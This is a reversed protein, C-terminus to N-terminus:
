EKVEWHRVLHVSALIEDALGDPLDTLKLGPKQSYAVTGICICEETEALVFSVIEPGCSELFQRARELEDATPALDSINVLQWGDSMRNAGKRTCGGIGPM